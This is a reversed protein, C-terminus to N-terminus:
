SNSFIYVFESNFLNFISFLSFQNYHCLLNCYVPSLIVNLIQAISLPFVFGSDHWYYKRARRLYTIQSTSFLTENRFLQARIHFWLYSNAERFSLSPYFPLSLCSSFLSFFFYFIELLSNFWVIARCSPHFNASDSMGNERQRICFHTLNHLALQRAFM